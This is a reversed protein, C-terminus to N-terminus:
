GDCCVGRQPTPLEYPAPAPTLPYCYTSSEAKWEIKSHGYFM